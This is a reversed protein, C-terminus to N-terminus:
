PAPSRARGTATAVTATSPGLQGAGAVPLRVQAM